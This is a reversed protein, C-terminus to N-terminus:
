VFSQLQHSVIKRENVRAQACDHERCRWRHDDVDVRWAREFQTRRFDIRLRLLGAPEAGHRRLLVIDRDVQHREVERGLKTGVNRRFEGLSALALRAKIEALDIFIQELLQARKRM